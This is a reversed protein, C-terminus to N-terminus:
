EEPPPLRHERAPLVNYYANRPDIPSGDVRVEFHLHAGFSNGTNGKMGIHKGALVFDGVSVHQSGVQTRTRVENREEISTINGESDRHTITFDRYGYNFTVAEGSEPALHSYIFIRGVNDRIQVMVGFGGQIQDFESINTVLGGTATVEGSITAYIRGTGTGRTFDLGDHTGVIFDWSEVGGPIPHAPGLSHAAEKMVDYYGDLNEDDFVAPDTVGVAEHEGNEVDERLENLLRQREAATSTLLIPWLLLIHPDTEPSSNLETLNLIVSASFMKFAGIVDESYHELIAVRALRRLEVFHLYEYDHFEANNTDYYGGADVTNNGDPPEPTPPTAPENNPPAPAYVTPAYVVSAAIAGVALIGFKVIFPIPM